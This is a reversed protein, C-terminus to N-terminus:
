HRGIVKTSSEIHVLVDRINLFTKKLEDKVKHAIEHGENVPINGDVIVHIDIFYEFGMKRMFCKDLGEVGPVELAVSRIKNITEDPPATDMLEFLAPKLLRYSNIIIIISAFLAAYDDAVEYGEGGILAVSIGIFVTFSTIADSRQHWADNIVAVSKIRKGVKIIYRFLIEKIIVVLVLVALTFSAPANHPTIIEYISQIIIIIAATFLGFAVIVGAIPEAKGHGYPHDADAPKSAIRLGSLVIISTFVDALSEIGDAILAYSNGLAGSIIKVTSLTLSAIIGILTTKIGKSALQSSNDKAKLRENGKM